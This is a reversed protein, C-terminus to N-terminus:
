SSHLFIEFGTAVFIFNGNSWSLDLKIFREALVEKKKNWCEGPIYGTLSFSKLEVNKQRM